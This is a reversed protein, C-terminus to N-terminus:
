CSFIYCNKLTAMEVQQWSIVFGCCLSKSGVCGDYRFGVIVDVVRKEKDGCRTELMNEGTDGCTEPPAGM